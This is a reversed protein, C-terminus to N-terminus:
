YGVSKKGQPTKTPSRIVESPLEEANSSQGRSWGPDGPAYKCHIPLKGGESRGLLSKAPLTVYKYNLILM